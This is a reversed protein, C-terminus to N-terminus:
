WYIAQTSSRRSEQKGRKRDAEEKRKLLVLLHIMGGVFGFLVGVCTLWPTWELRYDLYVGVAIPAVMEMGVQGLAYLFGVEKPDPSQGIM